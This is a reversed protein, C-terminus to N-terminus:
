LFVALYRARILPHAGGSADPSMDPLVIEALFAPINLAVDAAASKKKKASKELEKM